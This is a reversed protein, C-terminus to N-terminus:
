GPIKLSISGTPYLCMHLFLKIILFQSRDDYLSVLGLIQLCSPLFGPFSISYNQNSDWCFHHHFNWDSPQFVQSKLIALIEAQSWLCHFISAGACYVPHFFETNRQRETRNLDELSKFVIDENMVYRTTLKLSFLFKFSFSIYFLM